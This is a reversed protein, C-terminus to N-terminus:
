KVDKLLKTTIRSASEVLYVLVDVANSTTTLSPAVGNEFKWNSGFTLTRGGTADQVLRIFGSQGATQNTPNALVRNGGLTVEFNNATNFNPTITAGDTLASIAGRQAATFSQATALAAKTDLTAKVGGGVADGVLAGSINAIDIVDSTAKTLAM